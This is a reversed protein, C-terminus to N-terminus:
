LVSVEDDADVFSSATSERTRDSDCCHTQITVKNEFTCGNAVGFFQGCTGTFLRIVGNQFLFRHVRDFEDRIFDDVFQIDQVCREFSHPRTDDTANVLEFISVFERFINTDMHKHVAVLADRVQGDTDYLVREFPAVRERVCNRGRTNQCLFCTVDENTVDHVIFEGHIIKVFRVSGGRM